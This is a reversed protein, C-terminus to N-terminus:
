IRLHNKLLKRITQTGRDDLPDAPMFGEDLRTLESLIQLCRRLYKLQHHEDLADCLQEDDIDPRRLARDMEVLHRLTPGHHRMEGVLGAVDHAAPKPLQYATPLYSAILGTDIPPQSIDMVLCGKNITARINEQDAFILLRRWETEDVDPLPENVWRRDGTIGAKLLLTTLLRTDDSMLALTNSDMVKNYINCTHSHMAEPTISHTVVANRITEIRPNWGLEALGQAEMKGQAIVAYCSEVLRRQWLLTKSLKGNKRRESIIWPELGGHPTLVIRAGNRRAQMAQRAIRYQWCGHVHVIDAQGEVPQSGLMAVHSAILKNDPDYLHSITM